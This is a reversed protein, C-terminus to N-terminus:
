KKPIIPISAGNNGNADINNDGYSWAIAGPQGFVGFGNGTITSQGIWVPTPGLVIIGAVGNHVAVARIMMLNGAPNPDEPVHFGAGANKAAISDEVVTNVRGRVLLGNRNNILQVRSLTASASGPGQPQIFVGSDSNDAVITNLVALHSSANQSVSPTFTIGIGSGDLTRIACNEVTLSKGSKFVIGNGGGFGIGKVTLGRLSVADNSGANVTIGALGGSVLVGAEGVGDNIISIGKTITVAGYGGADLVTIEGLSLTNDHARQFTRCPALRSCDNADNGLSSVFTRALQAEAPATPLALALAFAIIGSMTFRTMTKEM